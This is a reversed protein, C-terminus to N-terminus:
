SGQVLYVTRSPFAFAAGERAVIDALAFNLEEALALYEEWDRTALWCFVEVELASEGFRRFRCRVGEQVVWPCASLFARIAELIRRLQEPKTSYALGLTPNFLMRDRASLNAVEAGVVMSNPVTVLTREPTRLRCSRLGVDEVTGVLNGIRVTDGVQFPRDAAIAVAAFINELSKQAAFAVAVGGIGLGALATAVPVGLIHLAFLLALVVLLARSMRHFIPLFGLLLSAKRQAEERFRAFARELLRLAFWCFALLTLLRWALLFLRRSEGPLGLYSIGLFLVVVWLWLGLPGRLASAVIHVWVPAGRALVREGLSVLGRGVWKTLFFGLFLLLALALWQWLMLGWFAHSFFFGPAKDGLVGYGFKRYLLPLEQLTEPAFRWVHGINPDYTDGLLIDVARGRVEVRALRERDEPLGEEPTGSPLNSVKEAEVWGKRLLVLFLRRAALQGRSAQEAEPWADLDLYHAAHLFDGASAAEWFGSFAERPTGRQLEAAQPLGPNLRHAPQPLKGLILVQYWSPVSAVTRSDFLWATEGSALERTRRLRLEGNIGKQSFRLVSVVNLPVGAETPGQPDEVTVQGPTASLYLVVRCLQEALRPGEERQHALPLEELDLFHQAVAYDRLACATLFGRWSAAPSSRLVGQPAPSLGPNLRQRQVLESATALVPLLVLLAIRKKM